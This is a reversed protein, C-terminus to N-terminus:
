SEIKPHYMLAELLYLTCCKDPLNAFNFYITVNNETKLTHKFSQIYNINTKHEPPTHLLFHTPSALNHVCRDSETYLVIPQVFFNRGLIYAVLQPEVSLSVVRSSNLKWEWGYIQTYNKMDLVLLLKWEKSDIIMEDKLIGADEALFRCNYTISYLNINPSLGKCIIRM